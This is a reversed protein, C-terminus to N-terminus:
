QPDIIIDTDGECKIYSKVESTQILNLELDKIECKYYKTIGCTWIQLLKTYETGWSGYTLTNADNSVAWRLQYNGSGGIIRAVAKIYNPDAADTYVTLYLPDYAEVPSLEGDGDTDRQAIAKYNYNIEKALKFGGTIGPTNAVEISTKQLRGALDYEYHTAMNNAGLVYSLEDWENYVYSTMSTGIPTMRFDDFYTTGVTNYVFVEQGQTIQKTYFNLQVWNGALVVEQENFSLINGGANVKVNRYGTDTDGSRYVWVSVSYSGADPKVKFAHVNATAALSARGTHARTSITATSGKYVQGSFYNNTGLDEAGSYFMQNYGTNAVAFVKSDKDGMKTAMKNGNIDSVELPMSYHDYKEVTSTNIWKPNTQTANVGWQFNDFEGVYGLYAGDTDIAGKWTFTKHKRWIKSSGTASPELSGDFKHYRWDNSWTNINANVTKWNGIADKVQTLAAATQSLMNKNTPNDVKSGMASYYKYAPITTFKIKTENLEKITELSQGSLIDYTSYNITSIFDAELTKTTKLVSQERRKSSSNLFYKKRQGNEILLKSHKFTEQIVGQKQQPDNLYKNELSSVLQNKSNFQKNHLLLGINSTRDILQHKTFNIDFAQISNNLNLNVGKTDNNQQLTLSLFNDLQFGRNNYIINKITNFRYEISKILKDGNTLKRISTYEYMVSPPPLETIFDINKTYNAPAYTTTGSSQNTGPKVYFYKSSYEINSGDTINLEKVRIGGGINNSPMLSKNSHFKLRVRTGNSTDTPDECNNPDIDDMWGGVIKHYLNYYVWNNNNCNVGRRVDSRTNSEPIKFTLLNSSVSTILFNGSVDGMRHSTGAGPPHRWYLADLYALKNVEFYKTFDIPNKSSEKNQIQLYKGDTFQRFGFLFNKNFVRETKAVEKNFVDSEYDINIVTGVPTKVTKLSWTDPHDKHFGWPDVKNTDFDVYTKNYTFDFPPVTLIGKKGLTKVSKLTLRGKESALSNPTNQALTYDYHFEIIKQASAYINPALVKIDNVDLINKYNEGTLNRNYRFIERPQTVQGTVFTEKYNEILNMSGINRSELQSNNSKSINCYQSSNKLIIIKSLKLTKHEAVHFRRGYDTSIIAHYQINSAGPIKNYTGTFYWKNDNGKVQTRNTDEYWQYANSSSPIKIPTSYSDMRDSKVFLATHTRTKIRDLYYIDKLGWSYNKINEFERLGERPTRWRYSDTWKGYEFEVWYGIDGQSLKHDENWDIYDPGTVATLLWHTAYSELQQHESFGSNINTDISTIRDIKERQYVPIAYHYVKGDTTTIKYAGIGDRPVLPSDRRFDKPAIILHPNDLLQQNTFVEVYNGRKLRNNTTNYTEHGAISQDFNNNHTGYSFINSPNNPTTNWNGSSINLYSTFENNFYFHIDKSSANNINKSFSGTNDPYQSIAFHKGKHDRILSRKNYIFGNELIYPTLTGSIGQGSVSYKDYNISSFNGRAIESNRNLNNYSESSDHDVKDEFLSNHLAQRMNGSYLSGQNITFDKEFLWYNYHSYSFGINILTFVPISIAFQSSSINFTNTGNNQNNLGISAGNISGNLGNQSTMSVGLSSVSIGVSVNTKSNTSSQNVSLGISSQGYSDLNIGLSAGDNGISLRTPGSKAQVGFNNRVSLGTEGNYSQNASYSYYAGISLADSVGIDISGKYNHSFGGRDYVIDYTKVQNWDDPVKNIARNIAGPNLSWGLGVWSAEQDMAIGAHYSLAIPYGGEPSPVNLLPLVYTFDGTLLNVMDTADVPEFAAAEPANPGQAYISDPLNCFICVLGILFYHYGTSIRVNTKM